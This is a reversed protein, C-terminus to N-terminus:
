HMAQVVSRLMLAVAVQVTLLALTTVFVPAMVLHIAALPPRALRTVVSATVPLVAVKFPSMTKETVTLLRALSPFYEPVLLVVTKHRHRSLVNDQQITNWVPLVAAFLLTKL